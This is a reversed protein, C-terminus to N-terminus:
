TKPVPKKRAPKPPAAQAYAVSAAILDRHAALAQRGGDIQIWERMTTKGYPQFPTVRGDALVRAALEAPVKLGISAGYVCGLMRRGLFVTPCGFMAGSRLEPEIVRAEAIFDEFLSKDHNM